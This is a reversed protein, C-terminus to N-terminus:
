FGQNSFPNPMNNSDLMSSLWAPLIRFHGGPTKYSRLKGSAIWNKISYPSCNCITAAQSPSLAPLQLLAPLPLSKPAM